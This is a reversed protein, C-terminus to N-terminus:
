SLVVATSGLRGEHFRRLAVNAELVAHNLRRAAACDGIAVLAEVKGDLETTLADNVALSTRVVVLDATTEAPEGNIADALRVTTGDVATVVSLIRFRVGNSRLRRYVQPLSEEPIALGVARAPTVIEVSAGREAVLEAASIGHWFGSGDDVVAVRAPIGGANGSLLDWVSVVRAGAGVPFVPPQPSAGTACVVLDPEEAVVGGATAPTELRVDVGLRDLERELYFVFDLLEERTPGAAATRLQGGVVAEREFLVVGHGAEAAVRAAELGAPGGGAVVVRGPEPATVGLPGWEAERGLRPNITCTVGGAYRRCDQVIGICPRIRDARGIRAKEVWQPDALLGRGVAVFDTQGAALAREALDPLRIRGAVMVPVDVLQKVAEALGLAFGEDWSSDKVYAGRQGVTISLYDVPAAEQLADVIELTDDLTLGGPTQEDASLRAGVVFDPECRSRIEGVIEILFRTRGDITDGRYADLRRNSAPSLFQAVLYGHAAHVEAGDIGASAYNAACRGFADVIERIDAPTMEHPVIPDRPSPIPSPALPIAETQGGPSERGLHILQGFMRAGHRHVAEARAHLSDAIAEDWAEILIRAPFRSTPHVATGGFVILGVGAAAREEQIALDRASVRGDEALGTGMPSQVIRNRITLRGISGSEFLHPYPSTTM